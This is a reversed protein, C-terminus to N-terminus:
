FQEDGNNQPEDCGSTQGSLVHATPIAIANILLLSRLKHFKRHLV